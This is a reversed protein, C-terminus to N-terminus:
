NRIWQVVFKLFVIICRLLAIPITIIGLWHLLIMFSLTEALSPHGACDVVTGSSITCNLLDILSFSLFSLLVPLAGLFLTLIFQFAFKKLVTKKTIEM